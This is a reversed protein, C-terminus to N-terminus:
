ANRGQRRPNRSPHPHVARLRAWERRGEAAVPVHRLLEVTIREHGSRLAPGARLHEAFLEHYLRYVSRDQDLTEVLYFGAQEILWTLDDDAYDQNDALATALPAWLERPLGTGEAWALPTLLDRVRHAKGGYRELDRDFAAGVDRWRERDAAVEAPDLARPTRALTRAAVQAILFSHGAIAAVQGAVQRALEPQDRYPTPSDPDDAALLVKTVYDAM